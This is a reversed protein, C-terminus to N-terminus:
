GSLKQSVVVSFDAIQSHELDASHLQGRKGDRRVQGGGLRIEVQCHRDVGKAEGPAPRDLGHGAVDLVVRRDGNVRHRDAAQAFVLCVAQRAHLEVPRGDLSIAASREDIGLPPQDADDDRPDPAFRDAERYRGAHDRLEEVAVDASVLGLELPELRARRRHPEFDPQDIRKAVEGADGQTVDALGSGRGRGGRIIAPRPRQQDVARIHWQQHGRSARRSLQAQRHGRGLIALQHHLEHEGSGRPPYQGASGGRDVDGFPRPHDGAQRRFRVPRACNGLPRALHVNGLPDLDLMVRATRRDLQGRTHGHDVCRLELEEICRARQDPDIPFKDGHDLDGILEVRAPRGDACGRAASERDRKLSGAQQDPLVLLVEDPQFTALAGVATDPQNVADQDLDVLIPARYAYEVGLTPIEAELREFCGSVALNSM